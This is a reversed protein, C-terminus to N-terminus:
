NWGLKKKYNGVSLEIKDEYDINTVCNIEFDNNYIEKLIRVRHNGNLVFACEYPTQTYINISMPGTLHINDDWGNEIENRLSKWKGTTVLEDWEIHDWRTILKNINM